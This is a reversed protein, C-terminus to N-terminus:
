FAGQKKGSTEAEAGDEMKSIAAAACAQSLGGAM